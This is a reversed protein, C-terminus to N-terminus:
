VNALSLWHRSEKAQASHPDLNIVRKFNEMAGEWQGVSYQCVAMNYYWKFDEGLYSRAQQYYQIAEAYRKIKHYFFAIEVLVCGSKPLHYYNTALDVMHQAMFNITTGDGM